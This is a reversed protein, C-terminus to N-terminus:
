QAVLKSFILSLTRKWGFSLGMMITIVVMFM